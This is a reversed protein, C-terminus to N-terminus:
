DATLSSKREILKCSCQCLKKPPTAHGELFLPVERTSMPFNEQYCGFLSSKLVSRGNGPQAFLPMLCQKTGCYWLRGYNIQIYMYMNFCITNLGTKDFLVTIYISSVFSTPTLNM